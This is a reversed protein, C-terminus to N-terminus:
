HCNCAGGQADEFFLEDASLPAEEEEEEQEAQDAGEEAPANWEVQDFSVDSGEEEAISDDIVSSSLAHTPAALSPRVQLCVWSACHTLWQSVSPSHCSLCCALAPTFPCFLRKIPASM